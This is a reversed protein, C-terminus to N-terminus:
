SSATKKLACAFAGDLEPPDPLIAVWHAGAPVDDPLMPRPDLVTADTHKELFRAIQGENEERLTSCTSYVLTGGPALAAFAHELLNCQLGALREIDDADKGWRLDPHRHLLGFGTCPVDLLIKDAQSVPLACGDARIPAINDMGTRRRNDLLRRMRRANSDIAVVLGSPGVLRAALTSKGGPAAGIELATGGPELGLLRVAVAAAENQVTVAGARLLELSDLPPPDMLFRYDAFWRGSKSRGGSKELEAIRSESWSEDHVTRVTLGAARNGSGCRQEAEAFGLQEIWMRVIWNPYSYVTALYNVPDKTADPWPWTGDHDAVRRLVANVLGATGPHGWHKALEVATNVAAFRPVRSLELIQFAGIRLIQQIPAPLPNHRRTVFPDLSFDLRRRLKLSGAALTLALARDKRGLPRRRLERDFAMDFRLEGAATALLVRLAARRAALIDTAEEKERRHRPTM